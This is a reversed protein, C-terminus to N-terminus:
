IEKTNDEEEEKNLQKMVTEGMSSNKMVYRNIDLRKPLEVSSKHLVDKTNGCLTGFLTGKIKPGNCYILGTM